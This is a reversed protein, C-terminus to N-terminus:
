YAKEVRAFVTKVKTVETGNEVTNVQIILNGEKKETASAPLTFPLKHDVDETIQTGVTGSISYSAVLVNNIEWYLYIIVDDYVSPDIIAGNNDKYSMSNTATSGALMRIAM